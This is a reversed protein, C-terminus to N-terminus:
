DLGERRLEALGDELGGLHGRGRREHDQGVLEGGGARLHALKLLLAHQVLRLAPDAGHGVQHLLPLPEDLVGHAVGLVQEPRRELALHRLDLLPQHLLVQEQVENILVVALRHVILAAHEGDLDLGLALEHVLVYHRAPRARHAVSSM